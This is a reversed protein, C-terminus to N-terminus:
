ISGNRFYIDGLTETTNDFHLESAALLLCQDGLKFSWPFVSVTNDFHVESAAM